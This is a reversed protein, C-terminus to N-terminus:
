SKLEGPFEWVRAMEEWLRARLQRDIYKPHTIDYLCENECWLEVLRDEKEITWKKDNQKQSSKCKDNFTM